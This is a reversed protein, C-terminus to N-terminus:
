IWLIEEKLAGMVDTIKVCSASRKERATNYDRHSIFLM